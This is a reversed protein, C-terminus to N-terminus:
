TRKGTRVPPWERFRSGGMFGTYNRAKAVFGRFGGTAVFCRIFDNAVYFKMHGLRTTAQEPKVVTTEQFVKQIADAEGLKKLLATYVDAANVYEGRYDFGGTSRAELMDLWRSRLLEVELDLNWHIGVGRFLAWLADIQENTLPQQTAPLIEIALPEEWLEPVSM